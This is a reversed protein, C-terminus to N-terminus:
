RAEARREAHLLLASIDHEGGGNRAFDAFLSIALEMVPLNLGRAKSIDSAAKLDKVFTRVHGGPEFDRRLMKQGHVKLVNSDAFGGQLAQHVKAPDIGNARAFIFVEAVAEIATASLIQSCLKALQGSGKAGVLTPRGLATLVPLAIDYTAQDGGAMIALTGAAAGGPGGSVPADLHRVGQAALRESHERALSPPISSMDVLISGPTMAEAVGAEFVIESVVPGNELIVITLDSRTVADRATTAVRGGAARARETKALTRNWVTIEFGREILRLAMPMGMLGTGLMAIRMRANGQHRRM